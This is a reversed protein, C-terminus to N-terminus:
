VVAAKTTTTATKNNNHVETEEGEPARVFGTVASDEELDNTPDPCMKWGGLVLAAAVAAVFCLILAREPTTNIYENDRANQSYFGAHCVHSNILINSVCWADEDGQGQCANYNYGNYNNYNYNQANYNDYNNNDYSSQPGDRCSFYTTEEGNDDYQPNSYSFESLILENHNKEDWYYHRSKYIAYWDDVQNDGEEQRYERDLDQWFVTCDLEVSVQCEQGDDMEYTMSILSMDDTLPEWGTVIAQDVMDNYGKGQAQRGMEIMALGAALFLAMTLVYPLQQGAATYQGRQVAFLVIYIAVATGLLNAWNMPGYSYSSGYLTVYSVMMWVAATPVITLLGINVLQPYKPPQRPRARASTYFWWLLAAVAAVVVMVGFAVSIRGGRPTMDSWIEDETNRNAYGIFLEDLKYRNSSSSSGTM